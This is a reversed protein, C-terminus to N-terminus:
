LIERRLFPDIHVLFEYIIMWSKDALNKIYNEQNPNNSIIEIEDYLKINENIELSCLNMCINWVQKYTKWNIYFNVKNSLNRPLWEKYWFPITAIIAKQNTTRTHNYSVWEWKEIKQISVIQSTVKLAPKLKEWIEHQKHSKQLPNYWYLALWPRRANFFDDQINLIWASNWIHRYKIQCGFDLIKYYMVKFENIQEQISSTNEEDASHLHSCVWEIKINKHNRHQKRLQMFEILNKHQLGERNMWTNLFIHITFKKDSNLLYKLTSINYVVIATNKRDIQLYNAPNTEGLLLFKKKTRKKALFYESLSDVVLYDNHYRNLIKTIEVLWHWYANSKLVPFIYDDPKLWQLFWLNFLINEKYIKIKNMPLLKPRFLKRIENFM